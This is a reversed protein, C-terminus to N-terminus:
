FLLMLLELLTPWTNAIKRKGGERTIKKVRERKGFKLGRKGIHGILGERMEERERERNERSDRGKDKM